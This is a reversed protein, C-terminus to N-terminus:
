REIRSSALRALDLAATSANGSMTPPLLISLGYVHGGQQWWVTPAGAGTAFARQGLGDIQQVEGSDAAEARVDEYVRTIDGDRDPRVQLNVVPLTGGQEGEWICGGAVNSSRTIEVRTQSRIEAATLLECAGSDSHANPAPHPAPLTVAELAAASPPPPTNSCGALLAAACVAVAAASPRLPGGASM